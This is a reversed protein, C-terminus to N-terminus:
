AANKKTRKNETWKKERTRKVKQGILGKNKEKKDEQGVEKQFCRELFLVLLYM